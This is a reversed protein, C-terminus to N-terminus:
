LGRMVQWRTAATYTVVCRMGASMAEQV